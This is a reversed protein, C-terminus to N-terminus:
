PAESDPRRVPPPPGTGITTNSIDRAMLVPGQQTGGSITNSVNGIAVRIPEAQRWWSELAQKFETDAGSRALLAEALAEAKNRDDPAHQFGTLQADGGPVLEAPAPSGGVRRFPRRVLAVLGDLLQKGLEGTAGSAITLLVAGVTVPDM